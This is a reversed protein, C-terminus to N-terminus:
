STGLGLEKALHPLQKLTNLLEVGVGVQQSLLRVARSILIKDSSIKKVTKLNM